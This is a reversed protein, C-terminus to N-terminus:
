RKDPKPIAPGVVTGYEITCENVDTWEYRAARSGGAADGRIM